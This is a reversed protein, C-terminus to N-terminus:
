EESAPKRNTSSAVGVGFIYGLLGGLLTAVGEGSLIHTIGLIVVAAILIVSIAIAGYGRGVFPLEVAKTEPALAAVGVSGSATKEIEKDNEKVQFTAEATLTFAGVTAAIVKVQAGSGAEVRNVSAASAPEVTWSAGTAPKGDPLTAKFEGSQVGVTVAGPGEIKLPEPLAGRSLAEPGGREISTVSIAKVALGARGLKGAAAYFQKQALLTYGLITLLAVAAFVLTAIALGVIQSAGLQGSPPTPTATSTPSPSLTPSAVAIPSGPESTQALAPITLLLLSTTVAILLWAMRCRVPRGSPQRDPPCFRLSTIHRM